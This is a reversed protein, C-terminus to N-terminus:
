RVYGYHGFRRQLEVMRAVKDVTFATYAFGDNLYGNYQALEDMEHLSLPTETTVM